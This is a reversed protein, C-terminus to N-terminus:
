FPTKRVVSTWAAPIGAAIDSATLGVDYPWLDATLGHLYAGCCAADFPSLGQALLAGIIGALVDGSGCTALLENGTANIVYAGDPSAIITPRGKFVVTQGCSAAAKKAQGVRDAENSQVTGGFLAAFEGAHPTLVRPSAAMRASNPSIQMLSDADIVVPVTLLRETIVEALKQEAPGRGMGNGLIIAHMGSALTTAQDAADIDYRGATTGPLPRTVAELPQLVAPANEPPAIFVYGAGSRLASTAVLSAAGSMGAAGGIILVKASGKHALPKRHPLRTRVDDPDFREGMLGAMANAPIGIDDVMVRGACFAGPFLYLGPKPCGLTLTADAHISCDSQDEPNLLAQGTDAEIGSPVDVALVIAGPTRAGTDNVMATLAAFLPDAYGARLGTGLVADIIIEARNLYEPLLAALKEVTDIAIIPVGSTQALKAQAAADGRLQEIPALAALTVNEGLTHLIRAAAYGDGGNNGKGTVMLVAGHRTSKWLGQTAQAVAKGANEMLTSSLIGCSTDIRRM